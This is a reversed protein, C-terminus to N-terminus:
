NFHGGIKFTIKKFSQIKGNMEVAMSANKTEFPEDKNNEFIKIIMNFYPDEYSKELKNLNLLTIGIVGINFNENRAVINEFINGKSFDLDTYKINDLHFGDMIEQTNLNARGTTPDINLEPLGETFNYNSLMKGFEVLKLLEIIQVGMDYVEKISSTFNAENSLRVEPKVSAKLEEFEDNPLTIRFVPVENDSLEFLESRYGKEIFNTLASTFSVLTLILAITKTYM